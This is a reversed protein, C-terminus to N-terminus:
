KFGSKHCGDTLVELVDKLLNSYYIKYFQNAIMQNTNVQRMIYVLVDLGIDSIESLHHKFAWVICDIM